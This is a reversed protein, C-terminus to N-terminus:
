EKMSEASFVNNSCLSEENDSFYTALTDDKDVKVVNVFEEATM